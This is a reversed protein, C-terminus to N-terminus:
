AITDPTYKYSIKALDQKIRTREKELRRLTFDLTGKPSVAHAKIDTELQNKLRSLITFQTKPDICGIIM